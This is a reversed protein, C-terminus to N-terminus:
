QTILKGHEVHFMSAVEDDTAEHNITQKEIEALIVQCDLDFLLDLVKCRNHIDLEASLDDILYTCSRATKTSLLKGQALRMAFALLKQQGRSLLESANVGGFKIRIDARHPGRQTFGAKADQQINDNLADLLSKNMDWGSYYEITFGDLDLLENVFQECLPLYDNLYDMRFQNINLAETTFQQTWAHVQSRQSSNHSYSKLLLNRNKLSHKMRQWSYIFAQHEVHFVGWDLFQRRVEPGGTILSFADSNLIQLPLLAALESQSEAPEGSIRIERAKSISRQIGINIKSSEGVVGFITFAQQGKKILPKTKHTRFSRGMALMHIAELISSKGSGNIGTILNFKKFPKLSLEDIIRLNKINIHHIPM